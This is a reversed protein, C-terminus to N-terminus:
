PFAALGADTLTRIRAAECRRLSRGKLVSLHSCFSYQLEHWRQERKVEFV